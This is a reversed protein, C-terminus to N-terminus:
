FEFRLGLMINAYIVNKASFWERHKEGDESSLDWKITPVYTLRAGFDLFMRETLGYSFGAALLGAINATTKESKFFQLVGYEDLEGYNQLDVSLSLDGYLDSLNLVTKTNSYGLGFGVYPIFQRVPKQYGDFFDYFAMASIIDTSITSHAGGSQVFVVVDPIVGGQLALDGEFLPAANYESEAIHDWGVEVRWQPANPITWGLSVGAAFSFANYNKNAGLTAIDGLGAYEFDACAGDKCSDYYASSIVMGDNPNIYYESTLSNIENNIKGNVMSAGGRFSLVFRSGDDQYWGDGLYNGPYQWNATATTAYLCTLVSLLVTFRLKM